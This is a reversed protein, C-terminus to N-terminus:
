KRRRGISLTALSTREADGSPILRARDALRGWHAVTAFLGLPNPRGCRITFAQDYVGRRVGAPPPIGGRVTDMGWPKAVVTGAAQRHGTHGARSRCSSAWGRGSTAPERTEAVVIALTQRHYLRPNDKLRLQAISRAPPRQGDHMDPANQHPPPPNAHIVGSCRKRAAQGPTQRDEHRGLPSPPSRVLPGRPGTGGPSTRVTPHPARGKLGTRRRPDPRLASLGPAPTM